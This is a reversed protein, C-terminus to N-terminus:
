IQNYLNGHTEPVFIVIFITKLLCILCFYLFLGGTGIFSLLINSSQVAIFIMFFNFTIMFTNVLSKLDPTFWEASVNNIM